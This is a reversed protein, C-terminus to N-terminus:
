FRLCSCCYNNSFAINYIQIIDYNLSFVYEVFNPILLFYVVRVSLFARLIVIKKEGQSTDNESTVM